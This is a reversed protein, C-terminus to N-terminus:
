DCGKVDKGIVGVDEGIVGVDVSIVGLVDERCWRYM